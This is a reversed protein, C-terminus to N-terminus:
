SKSTVQWRWPPEESDPFALHDRGALTELPVLVPHDLRRLRVGAAEEIETAGATRTVSRWGLSPLYSWYRIEVTGLTRRRDTVQTFLTVRRRSATLGPRTGPKACSRSRCRRFDVPLLTEGGGAATALPEPALARVVKGVPSGYALVLPNRGCPSDPHRPVCALRRAILAGLERSASLPPAVAILAVATAFVAAIVLALAVQEVSASGEQPLVRRSWKSKM